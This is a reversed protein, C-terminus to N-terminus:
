LRFSQENAQREELLKQVDRLVNEQAIEPTPQLFMDRLTINSDEGVTCGVEFVEQMHLPLIPKIMSVFTNIVTNTNYFLTKRPNGPYHLFLEEQLRGECKPSFNEWGFTSGEVLVINGNRVTELNPASAQMCYFWGRAHIKWHRDTQLAKDLQFMREPFMSGLDWAIAVSISEEGQYYNLLLLSSPHLEQMQEIAHVGQPVLNSNQQSCDIGYEEHFSQLGEIKNIATKFCGHAAIAHQAYMFDSLPRLDDRDEVARKLELALDREDDELTMTDNNENTTTTSMEEDESM